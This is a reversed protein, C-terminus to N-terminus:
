RKQSRGVTRYQPQVRKFAAAGEDTIGIEFYDPTDPMKDVWAADNNIAQVSEAKSLTRGADGLVDVYGADVLDLLAARAERLPLAPWDLDGEPFGISKTPMLLEAFNSSDAEDLIRYHTFTLEM